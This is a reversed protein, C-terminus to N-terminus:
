NLLIKFLKNKIKKFNKIKFMKTITKLILLYNQTHWKNFGNQWKYLMVKIEM